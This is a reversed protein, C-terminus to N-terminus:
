ASSPRDRITPRCSDLRRHCTSRLCGLAGPPAAETFVVGARHALLTSVTTDGKENAAYEPWYEAVPRSPAIKGRDILMHVCLAAMAKGVSMMCVVTDRKWPVTRDKDQFGGWLDVVLEGDEHVAVAAGLEGRKEFNDRFVERVGSFEPLCTGHIETTM